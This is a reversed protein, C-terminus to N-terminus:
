VMLAMAGLVVAIMIGMGGRVSSAAGTFKTPASTAAGQATSTAKQIVISVSPSGTGFPSRSSSGTPYPVLTETSKVVKVTVYNTTTSSITTTSLSLSARATETATVPCVTTYLSIVETTV